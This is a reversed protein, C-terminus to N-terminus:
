HVSVCSVIVLVLLGLALWRPMGLIMANTRRSTKRRSAMHAKPLGSVVVFQGVRRTRITSSTAM